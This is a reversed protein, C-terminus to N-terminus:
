TMMVKNKEDNIKMEYQELTEELRRTLEVLEVESNAVLHIDDDFSFNSVLAGGYQGGDESGLVDIMMREFFLNFLFTIPYLKTVGVTFEFWESNTNVMM